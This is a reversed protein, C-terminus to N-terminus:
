PNPEVSLHYFITPTPNNNTFTLTGNESATLENTLLQFPILLSTSTYISYTRGTVAYWQIVDTAPNGDPIIAITNFTSGPNTPDTMAIYEQWGTLGDNDTDLSANAALTEVDPEDPYYERLWPIPTNNTATATATEAFQATITGNGQVNNWHSTCLTLGAAGPVSTGNTHLLSIYYGSQATIVFSTSAGNQLTVTTSPTITGNAGASPTITWTTSDNNVTMTVPIDLSDPPASIRLLAHYTGTSKGSANLTLTLQQSVNGTISGSAPTVSLWDLPHYLAFPAASTAATSGDTATVRLLCNSSQTTLNIPWAYRNTPPLADALANWSSGGDPSVDLEFTNSYNIYSWEVIQTTGISWAEGGNPSSLTISPAPPASATLTITGTISHPPASYEYEDGALTWVLELPGAADAAFSLTVTGTAASAISDIDPDSAQWTGTTNAGTTGDYDLLGGSPEALKTAGNITIKQPVYLTAARIWEDDSSNNHVTVTLTTTTGPTFENTSLTLTSGSINRTSDTTRTSRTEAYDPLVSITYNLVSETPGANSVILMVNTGHATSLTENFSAPSCRLEAASASVTATYMISNFATVTLLVNTQPLSSLNIVAKGTGDTYASGLLQNTLSLATLAGQVSAVQVTFATTVLTEDHTVSLTAPTQTRVQVSPDGFVTWTNFMNVGDTGWEDLMKMSANFCLAGYAHIESTVLLTNFENQATMPPSWEQEITSAYIALAGAPTSNHSARTWAEAFCTRGTFTGNLCAVDFIFPWRTTNTLNNVDSNAFGSTVWETTDGHGVYNILGRGQNVATAVQSATVGPDYFQDIATYGHALLNTRIADTHEIDSPGSGEDSALGTAKTYWSDSAAANQEYALTRQVMITIDQTSEGSFRGVFIDPYNDSGALKSYTPDSSGGSVHPSPLAEGDGVLLLYTLGNTNYYSQVFNKIATTDAGIASLPVLVTQIGRQNKWDVLPQMQSTYADVAIVLMHDNTDSLPTYRLSPTQYNIFHSAYISEFAPSEATATRTLSNPGSEGRTVVTAELHTFLRLRREQPFYRFPCIRINVGRHRRLIYPKGVQGIEAPWHTQSYAGGFTYPVDAPNISRPLPGKSPAVPTAYYDRYALVKVRLSVDGTDPLMISRTIVPLQPAGKEYTHAGEPLHPLYWSAGNITIPHLQTESIRIDLRQVDESEAIANVQVDAVVISCLSFLLIGAISRIINNNLGDM